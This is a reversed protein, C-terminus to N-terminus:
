SQAAVSLGILKPNRVDVKPTYGVTSSLHPLNGDLNMHQKAFKSVVYLGMRFVAGM